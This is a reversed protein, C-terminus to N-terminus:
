GITENQMVNLSTDAFNGLADKPSYLLLGATAGVILALIPRKLWIALALVVLPPILSLATPTVAATAAATAAPETLSEVLNEVLSDASMM